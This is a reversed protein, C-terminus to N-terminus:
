WLEDFLLSSPPTPDTAKIEEIPYQWPLAQPILWINSLHERSQVHHLPFFAVVHGNLIARRMSVAGDLNSVTNAARQEPSQDVGSPRLSPVLLKTEILLHTLKLRVLERFPHNLASPRWYLAQNVDQEHRYPAYIHHYPLMYSEEPVHQIKVPSIGAEKDGEEAVKQLVVPDLLMQYELDMALQNLVSLKAKLLVYIHNKNLSSVLIWNIGVLTLHDLYVGNFSGFIAPHETKFSSGSSNFFKSTNFPHSDSLSLILTLNQLYILKWTFLAM